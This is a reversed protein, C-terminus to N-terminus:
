SGELVKLARKLVEETESGVVKFRALNRIRREVAQLWDVRKPWTQELLSELEERERKEMWTRLFEGPYVQGDHVLPVQPNGPHHKRVYEELAALVVDNVPKCERAALERIKDMLESRELPYYFSTMVLGKYRRPRGRLAAM